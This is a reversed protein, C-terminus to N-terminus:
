QNDNVKCGSSSATLSVLDTTPLTVFGSEKNAKRYFIMTDTFLLIRVCGVVDSAVMKVPESELLKEARAVGIFISISVLVAFLGVPVSVLSDLRPRVRNIFSRPMSGLEHILYRLRRVMSEAARIKLFLEDLSKRVHEMKSVIDAKAGGQLSDLEAQLDRLEADADSWRKKTDAISSIISRRLRLDDKIEQRRGSGSALFFFLFVVILFYILSEGISLFFIWYSAVAFVLSGRFHSSISFSLDLSKNLYSILIIEYRSIAEESPKRRLVKISGRLIVLVELLLFLASSLMFDIVRGLALSFAISGALFFTFRSFENATAFDLPLGLTLFYSLFSVVPFSLAASVLSVWGV